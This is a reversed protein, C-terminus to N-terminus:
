AAAGVAAEAPQGTGAVRTLAVLRLALLAGCWGTGAAALTRLEDTSVGLGQALEGLGAGREQLRLLRLRSEAAPVQRRRLERADAASVQLLSRAAAPSIKRVPRGARGNLLSVALRPPVGALTAVETPTLDGVAMVLRLHARFPGADVWPATACAM